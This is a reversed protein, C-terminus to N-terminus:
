DVGRTTLRTLEQIAEARIQPMIPMIYKELTSAFSGIILLSMSEFLHKQTALNLSFYSHEVAVCPAVGCYNVGIEWAVDWASPEKM